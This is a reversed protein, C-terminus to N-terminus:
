REHERAPESRPSQPVVAPRNWQTRPSRTAAAPRRALPIAVPTRAGRVHGGLPRPPGPPLPTRRALPSVPPRLAPPRAGLVPWLGALVHGVVPKPQQLDVDFVQHRPQLGFVARRNARVRPERSSEPGMFVWRWAAM